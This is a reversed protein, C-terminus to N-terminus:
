WCCGTCTAVWECFCWFAVGQLLNLFNVFRHGDVVAWGYEEAIKDNEEKLKKKEEKTMAKRAESREKYHEHIQTFDCKQLDKIRAAEERTM